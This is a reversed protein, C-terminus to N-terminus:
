REYDDKKRLREREENQLKKIHEEFSKVLDENDNLAQEDRAKLEENLARIFKVVNNININFGFNVLVKLFISLFM